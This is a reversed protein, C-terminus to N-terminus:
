SSADGFDGPDNTAGLAGFGGHEGDRYGSHRRTARYSQSRSPSAGFPASPNARRTRRRGILYGAVFVIAIAVIVEM